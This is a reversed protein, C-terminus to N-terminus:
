AIREFRSPDFHTSLADRTASGTVLSKVMDGTAPALTVGLRCHGSAIILNEYGPVRGIVPLQDPTCPRYGVGESIYKMEDFSRVHKKLVGYLWSKRSQSFVSEFGRLEFFATTCSSSNNNQIVAVGYDELLAPCKTLESRGTDFTIKLGRAPLIQPDYGLPRCLDRAWAGNAVVFMDAKLEETQSNASVIRPQVRRLKVKHGLEIKVGMTTLKRRLVSQLKTSNVSLEKNFLVGGGIGMFGMEYAESGDIFHGNLEEATTRALSEDKYLGAVGNVLDVDVSEEAFFENYLQLSRMGFEILSKESRRANRLAGLWKTNKLIELPSVYVPGQRGIYSPLIKRLGIPPTTAFSPVILGANNVSTQGGITHMDLMTVAMGNRALYYSAFMGIIGAGVVVVHMQTVVSQVV